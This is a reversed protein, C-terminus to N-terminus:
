PSAPFWMSVTMGQGPESWARVRGGHLEVVEQVLALGLGTGGTHRARAQDPRYFRDFIRDIEQPLVGPGQDVVEIEVGGNRARSSVTIIGGEPSYKVANDLLNVLALEVLEGDLSAKGDAISVQISVDRTAARRSMPWAAQAVLQSIPIQERRLVARGQELRALVLLSESLHTLRDVDREMDELFERYVDEDQGKQGLLSQIMAKISALPSKLEHAAAASFLRRTSQGEELALAMHNFARGLEDMEPMAQGPVRFSFEGRALRGAAGRIQDVPRTIARSLALGLFAAVAGGAATTMALWRLLVGGSAMIDGVDGALFVTGAVQRHSYVPVGVYMVWEGDALRSVSANSDGGLAGTIEERALHNGVLRRDTSSDTIVTGQEDTVILRVGTSAAMDSILTEWASPGDQLRSSVMGAAITAQAAHGQERERLSSTRWAYSVMYTSLAGAVVVLLVYTGVLRWRLSM